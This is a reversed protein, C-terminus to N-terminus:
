IYFTETFLVTFNKSGCGTTISTQSCNAICIIVDLAVILYMSINSSYQMSHCKQIYHIKKCVMRRPQGIM